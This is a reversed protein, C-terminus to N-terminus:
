RAASFLKTTTLLLVKAGLKAVKWAAAMGGESSGVVVVDVRDIIPVSRAPAVVLQQEETADLRALSCAAVALAFFSRRVFSTSNM